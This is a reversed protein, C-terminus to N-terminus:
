LIAEGEANTKKLRFSPSPASTAARNASAGAQIEAKESSVRLSEAFLSSFGAAEARDRNFVTV